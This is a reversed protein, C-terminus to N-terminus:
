PTFIKGVGVPMKALFQEATFLTNGKFDISGIKYQVGERITFRIILRKPSTYDLKVEKIEFDIYGKSRYFDSLRDKDDEFEEDKIKGSGTLWSWMWWRRTKLESRLTRPTFAQAGNFEVDVVRVKPTETIEITVTGRGANEDITVVYKAKTGQYGEKQYFKKIEETDAFLKRENLPEGVKSTVKKMLKSRSYLENGKLLIEMLIPKGQLVYSLIVGDDTFKEGIRINYFYGTAYLTRVDDDAQTRLYPEGVKLRINARVLEESAAAPGVHQIVIQTIKPGTGGGLQARASPLLMGLGLLLLAVRVLFKM